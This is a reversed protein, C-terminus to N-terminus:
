APEQALAELCVELGLHDSPPSSLGPAHAGIRAFGRLALGCSLIRDYRAGPARSSRSWGPSTWGPAPWTVRESAPAGAVRWADDVESLGEVAPEESRRLNTDGGFIACGGEAAHARLWGVIQALQRVRESSAQRGSELHATCVLLSRGSWRLRAWVLRRGMFSGPFPEVGRDEIPITRRVLALSFYESQTDTPDAPQSVFGAARFHHKLHAHWSRRVVEQLLVVDPPDPRLLMRLCAAETRLDLGHTDLGNLNWTILRLSM